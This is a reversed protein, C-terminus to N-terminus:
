EPDSGYELQMKISQITHRVKESEKGVYERNEYWDAILVFSLLKALENTHDHTKGTTNKIYIESSAILSQLLFDDYNFDIRLWSKVEELTVIM